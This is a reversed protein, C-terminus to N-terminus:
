MAERIKIYIGKVSFGVAYGPLSFIFAFAFFIFSLGFFDTRGDPVFAAMAIGLIASFILVSLLSSKWFGFITKMELTLSILFSSIAVTWFLSQNAKFLVVSVFPLVFSLILITRNM